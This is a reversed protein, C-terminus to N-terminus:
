PIKKEFNIKKQFNLFNFLINKIKKFFNTTQRHESCFNQDFVLGKKVKIQNLRHPKEFIASKGSKVGSHTYELIYSNM